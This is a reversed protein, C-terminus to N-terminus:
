GRAHRRAGLRIRYASRAVRKYDRRFFAIFNQALYHKDIDTLTGM